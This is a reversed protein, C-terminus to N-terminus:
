RGLLFTSAQVRSRWHELPVLCHNQATSKEVVVNPLQKDKLQKSLGQTSGLYHVSLRAATRSRAWGAWLEPDRPHYLSDFCWCERIRDAYRHNGLALSRMPSGGGSHCALIVNGITPSHGSNRYPGYATLAALVKDLYAEFVAPNTLSGAESRGGLTPAVLIVNKGSSNIEERFPWYRSRWYGDISASDGPGCVRTTKHGHLYLILDVQERPVYNEPIFIGTMPRAPSESGLPIHVYLTSAAPREERKILRPAAIAVRESGRRVAKLVSKPYGTFSFEEEARFMGAERQGSLTGANAPPNYEWHWPEAKYPYFGFCVANQVLWQYAPLRRLAVVNASNNEGGLYFDIARGSQHASHGPPAVWKRAESVSGYQKRAWEWRRTQTELDRFGSTPLLLPHRIGDARAAAVLAKWAAAALSHLPIPRAVGQVNVMDARNPTTKKTVRGGGPSEVARPTFGFHCVSRSDSSLDEFHQEEEFEFAPEPELAESATFPESEIAFPSKM